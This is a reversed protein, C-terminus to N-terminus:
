NQSLSVLELIGFGSTDRYSEGSVDNWVAVSQRLGQASAGNIQLDFGALRGASPRITRFPIKMVVTYSGDHVAAASEFGEAASPPNFSREGAFNVRYQGDDKEYYPTKGNNEDLFVEVSDQEYANQSAKNIVAGNVHVLVYLAETDWLTKATGKAGQWAMLYQDVPIEAAKDWQPDPNAADIRPTGYLAKVQKADKSIGGSNEVIYADPNLVGYFAPKGKLDKDFLTPNQAARWSMSDELGWFTIRAISRAHEKFIKFLRAYAIGQEVAQRESLVSDAGAQLDLETISIEVGLSIFRELSLAVHEPNTGLRYHGQMGIGDILPRGGADPNKENLEKVMAYVALAKNQNDLNYDNYYLKAEPDAQRAARFVIEIYEPGIAKYWPTQRLSARWDEPLPPNDSVGENLVDWSVVRGRFHEAVTKTHAELNEVAEDRGIGEYNMWGPSQQHWALTHGHMKMGAAIVKDAMEDAQTFTFAGKERQLADPKMGNEATAINFHHILLDFRPSEFVPGSVINGMLFYDEYQKKLSPLNEIGAPMIKMEGTKEGNKKNECAPFLLFPLVVMCLMVSKKKDNVM